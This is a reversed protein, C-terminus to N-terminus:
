QLDLPVIVLVNSDHVRVEGNGFSVVRGDRLVVVYDTRDWAWGSILRNTYKIAEYDGERQIGDPNGLVGVVESRSM